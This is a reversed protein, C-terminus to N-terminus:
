SRTSRRRQAAAVAAEGNDVVTVVHGDRELLRTAVRQNVVNDEALLIRLSARRRAAPAAACAAADDDRRRHRRPHHRPLHQRAGGRERALDPRGDRRRAADLHEVGAGDRRVQADDFRGGAQLGRLHAGAPRGPIGIGTDEVEFHLVAERADPPLAEALSVRLTSRDRRPHVQDRQRASEAPGPSGTRTPSSRQRARRPAIECGFRWAGEPPRSADLTGVTAGIMDRLGFDRPEFIMQGAEIKSFDLVDNIVTLLGDASSKAMELYERQEPQLETGLLLETM